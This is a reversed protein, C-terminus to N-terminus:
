RLPKLLMVQLTASGINQYRSPLFSKGADIRLITSWPARMNVAAGLGTIPQWGPDLARDRGWAQEVFLDLRYQEFINLSYSGRAMGLEEFRVGSAPVGHIRTDDFMGFQYKAFRDLDRGGFWAGNLHIKHFVNFYFDRSLSASYKVYTSGPAPDPVSGWQRWGARAFWAGNLIASYGARRYEWAGGFGNTVTSAPVTFAESTTTDRAYGDFRFQYQGSVKQFPTYQWGLNLGTTLPWTLLREGEREGSPEYVRDSSPAAIAFFDVSTDFPTGGLKPRQVNGAALVGAFLIALQTDERGRFQFNLYNIGFIPLPFSYSPDLTVGMALARATRTARDSVVRTDGQKIFYRLGKDTERYMIRESRRAASRSEDFAPDNVKFDDFAVMKEVLINRGAILIIQRATLGSFLFIPRNGIATVPSYTQTEENSVVPASLGTQVASVKVRAFTKRDIWVTGRYLSAANQVPDFRVVYCDYGGVKEVGDLRYRYDNDFRLQLPLSLVKEAQLLPFPPRDAGWKSGNVSFSQEEWEVGDAAVYYRNESVVDYGPDTMTPRFHQETRAAATYNRVLADQARQQQQHRAIIEQVSLLREASVDSRTVLVSAAGENFDVLVPSGTLPVRARVRGTESNRSYETARTKTGDALRVVAPEGEVPLTLALDLAAQPPGGWYVLFTAFTRNDFLLRHPITVTADRGDISLSLGAAAADLATIDASLLPAIRTLAPLAAIVTESSSWAVIAVNTGVTQLQSELIRLTAEDPRAGADGAISALRADPDVKLLHASAAADDGGGAIALMDVYPALDATYLETLWNQRTIRAAGLAVRISERASRADTAALRTAFATLRLDDGSEIELIVIAREHRSLLSQIATRWREVADVSEPVPVALWVPVNRGAYAAIREEVSRDAPAGAVRVAVAVAPSPFSLATRTGPPEAVAVRPVSPEDSRPQQRAAAPRMASLCLVAAIMVALTTNHPTMPTFRRADGPEDRV